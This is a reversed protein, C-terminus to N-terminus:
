TSAKRRRLPRRIPNQRLREAMARPILVWSAGAPTKEDGQEERAWDKRQCGKCIHVSAEYANEDEAWQWEATGCMACIEAKEQM